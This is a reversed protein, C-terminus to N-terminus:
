GGGLRGRDEPSSHPRDEGGLPVNLFWAIREVRHVYRHQESIVEKTQETWERRQSPDSMLHCVQDVLEDTSTFTSSRIGEWYTQTENSPPLNFTSSLLFGGAAPVNFDRQTPATFGQLSRLNISISASRYLDPTETKPDLTGRYRYRLRSDTLFGPWDAGGFLQLGIPYLKELMEIRYRNNATVYLYYALQGTLEVRRNPAFPIEEMIREVPVSPERTKRDVIRDLYQCLDPPVQRRWTEMNKVSGVYAVPAAFEPRDTGPQEIDAAVPLFLIRNGGRKRVNPAFAPDAVLIVDRSDFTDDGLIFPDDLIWVLRQVDLGAIEESSFGIQSLYLSSPQNVFFLLDPSFEILDTRLAAIDSSPDLRPARVTWGYEEM